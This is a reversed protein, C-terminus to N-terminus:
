MAMRLPVDEERVEELIGVLFEVDETDENLTMPGMSVHNVFREGSKRYNVLYMDVPQHQSLLQEVTAQALRENTEPGQILSLTKDVAEMKEYGCLAEWAHNVHVISHPASATTVVIAADSDEMMLVQDLTTPLAQSVTSVAPPLIAQACFDSEPSAFAMQNSWAPGTSYNAYHNPVIISEATFDSEPSAFSLHQGAAVSSLSARSSRAVANAVNTASWDSEPSALSLHQVAVTSFTARPSQAVASAVNTATFDSEPSALSLHAVSTFDAKYSRSAADAVHTASWDSEPSAFSLIQGRNAIAVTSQCRMNRVLSSTTSKGLNKAANACIRPVTKNMSAMMKIDIKDQQVEKDLKSSKHSTGLLFYM